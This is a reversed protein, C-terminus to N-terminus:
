PTVSFAVGCGKYYYCRSNKGVSKGGGLTTGYLKGAKDMSLADPLQGDSGTFNHLVSKHYNSDLKFVTGCSGYYCGSITGGALTTGYLNGAGDMVLASPYSGDAGGAFSYLVSYNGANDLKFVVGNGQIGIGVGYTTGYLNGAADRILPGRPDGSDSGGTFSYLVSLTGYQYDLKLIAGKGYAGGDYTVTYLNGATDAVLGQPDKGDIGDTFSYLVTEHNATDLKFIVGCGYSVYCSQVGGNYTTGYLNGAADLILAADPDGGDTTGSFTYLVTQHGATDRKFVTGCGHACGGNEPTGGNGTTGYLNGAADMLLGGYPGLGEAGLFSHLLDDKGTTDLRFLIGYDFSGGQSTVGYLNGVTDVVVGSTPESGDGPSGFEHLVKFTQAVGSPVVFLALALAAILSHNRKTNATM